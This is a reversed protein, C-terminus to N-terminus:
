SIWNDKLTMERFDDDHLIRNLYKIRHLYYNIYARKLHWSDRNQIYDKLFKPIQKVLKRRNESIKSGIVPNSYQFERYETITEVNGQNGLRKNLYSQTMRSYPISHWVLASRIFAFKYGLSKLKINLGTENDGVWEGNIIDPNYGGAKIFAEKLVAQHCSYVGFDNDSLYQEKDMDFLSFLYNNCYKLVWEPPPTEWLPKVCGSVTGVKYDLAFGKIIKSLMDPDAVIDDDTFYLINGKAHKVAGNRAFHSGQNKESYLKILGNSITIWKQVTRETDDTSNNDIVIIEYLDSPFNQSILSNLTKGIIYGRNFTPIIVSIFFNDHDINM